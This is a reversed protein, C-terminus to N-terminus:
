INHWRDLDPDKFYDGHIHFLKGDDMELTLGGILAIM